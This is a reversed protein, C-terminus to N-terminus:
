SIASEVTLTGAFQSIAEGGQVTVICQHRYVGPVLATHDAVDLSITAHGAPGSEISIGDGLTAELIAAADFSEAIAWRIEDAGTLDIAAGDADTFQCNLVWSESESLSLNVPNTM